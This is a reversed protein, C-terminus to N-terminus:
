YLRDISTNLRNIETDLAALAAMLNNPMADLKNNPVEAPAGFISTGVQDIRERTHVLVAVMGLLHPVLNEICDVQREAAMKASSPLRNPPVPTAEPALDLREDVFAQQM